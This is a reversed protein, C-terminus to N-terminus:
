DIILKKRVSKGSNFCGSVSYVGPSLHFASCDISFVSINDPSPVHTNNYVVQGLKDYIVLTIAAMKPAKVKIQFFGSVVPNPLIMVDFVPENSSLAVIKSYTYNGDFDIQKLRYYGNGQLPNHDIASYNILTSSNGAGKHNAVPYFDIGNSSREIVFSSNQMESGTSWTIDVQKGNISADFALLEIPLPSSSKNITSIYWSNNFSADASLIRNVELSAVVNTAASYTGQVASASQTADLDALTVTGFGEGGYRLFKNGAASTLTRTITWYPQSIAQITVGAGWTADPFSANNSTTPLSYTHTACMNGGTITTMGFWLPRFYSSTYPTYYATGLPFLSGDNGVTTNNGNAYYRCFSGNYFHGSTRVLVGPAPTTSGLTVKFGGLDCIGTTMTLTGDVEINGPTTYQPATAFTNNLTLDQYFSVTGSTGYQPVKIVQATTTSAYVVKSGARGPDLRVNGMSAGLFTFVGGNRNQLYPPDHTGGATSTLSTLTLASSNNMFTRGYTPQFNNLVLNTAIFNTAGVQNDIMITVYQTLTQTPNQQELTFTTSNVTCGSYNFFSMDGGTYCRMLISGVTFMAGATTGNYFNFALFTPLYNDMILSNVSMTGKNFFEILSAGASAMLYLTGAGNITGSNVYKNGAALGPATTNCGNENVTLTVGANITLTAGSVVYIVCCTASATVTVVHPSNIQVDSLAVPVAGTSWVTPDNWDGTKVSTIQSFAPASIFFVIGVWFIKRFIFYPFNPKIINM